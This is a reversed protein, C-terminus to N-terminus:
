TLFIIYSKIIEHPLKRKVNQYTNLLSTKSEIKSEDSIDYVKCM